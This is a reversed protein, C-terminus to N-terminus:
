KFQYIKKTGSFCTIVSPKKKLQLFDIMKKYAEEETNGKIEIETKAPSLFSTKAVWYNPCIENTSIEEINM